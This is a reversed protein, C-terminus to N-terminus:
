ILPLLGFFSLYKCIDNHYNHPRVVDQRDTENIENSKMNLALLMTHM